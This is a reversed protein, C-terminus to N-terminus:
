LLALDEFGGGLIHVKLPSNDAVSLKLRPDASLRNQIKITTERTENIRKIRRRVKGVESWGYTDRVEIEINRM